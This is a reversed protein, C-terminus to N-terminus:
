RCGGARPWRPAPSSGRGATSTASRARPLHGLLTSGTAARRARRDVSWSAACRVRVSSACACTPCTAAPRARGSRALLPFRKVPALRAVAVVTPTDALARRGPTFFPDVGNDVATVLDPRFGLEILEERTAESPTVTHSRRYFPPALAPRSSAGPAPRPAAAHDPGVDPRPRPPPDDPAPPPVVRALVVARREVGRRPRRLSGDPRDARRGRRAPVRHVPEGPPRRRLRPAPRDAAPGAAASTRHVIELGAAAWRRMLEDAHLESGGADPDDLDRWALVHVRRVGHGVVDAVLEDIADGGSM